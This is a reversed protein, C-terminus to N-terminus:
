QKDAPDTQQGIEKTEIYPILVESMINATITTGTPTPHVHDYFYEPQGSISTVDIISDAPIEQDIVEYISQFADVHANHDFGHYDYRCRKHEETPLDPVILTAQKAVFLKAGIAECTERFLRLQTRWINLGRRDFESALPSDDRPGVEGEPPKSLRLRIRTLTQSWHLLPDIWHPAYWQIPEPTRDFSWSGDPLTRWSTIDDVEGFYYMENWAHYIVVIDPSFHRIRSWLRGYSEFSSYGGVAGNIFDIKKDTRERIMEVTKWPWTDADKLDWGTGATASGGLFVIRVTNEPKVVAIDPTSIFGHRNVTKGEVYQGPKARYASFADICAWDSMPNRGARRGTLVYLDKVPRSIRVYVELAGFALLSSLILLMGSFLVRKGLPLQQQEKM